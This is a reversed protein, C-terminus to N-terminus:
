IKVSFIYNLFEKRPFGLQVCNLTMSPLLIPITSAQYPVIYIPVPREYQYVVLRVAYFRLQFSTGSKLPQGLDILVLLWFFFDNTCPFERIQLTHNSSFTSAVQRGVDITFCECPLGHVNLWLKEHDLGVDSSLFSRDWSQVVFLLDDFNWSGNALVWISDPLKDFVM